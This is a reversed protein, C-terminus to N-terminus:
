KHWLGILIWYNWEWLCAEAKRLFWDLWGAGSLVRIGPCKLFGKFPDYSKVWRELPTRKFIILPINSDGASFSHEETDPPSLLVGAHRIIQATVERHIINLSLPRGSVCSSCLRWGSGNVQFLRRRPVLPVSSRSLLGKVYPSKSELQSILLHIIRALDWFEDLAIPGSFFILGAIFRLAFPQLTTTHLNGRLHDNCHSWLLLRANNGEAPTM